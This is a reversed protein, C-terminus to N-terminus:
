NDWSFRITGALSAAPDGADVRMSLDLSIVTTGTPGTACIDGPESTAFRNWGDTGAIRWSLNSLEPGGEQSCLLTWAANSTVTILVAGPKVYTAGTKDTASSLGPISPDITGLMDISGFAASGELEVSIVSNVIAVARVGPQGPVRVTLTDEVGALTDSPATLTIVIICQEGPELRGIDLRGDDDSDTLPELDTMPLAAVGGVTAAVEDPVTEVPQYLAITWDNTSSTALDITQAVDGNEVTLVFRADAGPDVAVEREEFTLTVPGATPTPTTTPTSTATSEPTATSTAFVPTNTATSEPTVTGTATPVPAPTNTTTPETTPTSTATTQPTTIDTPTASAEAAMEAIPTADDAKVAIASLTGLSLSLALLLPSAKSRWSHQPGQNAPNDSRRARSM